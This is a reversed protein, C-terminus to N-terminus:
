RVDEVGMRKAKEIWEEESDTADTKEADGDEHAYHESSDKTMADLMGMLLKHLEKRNFTDPQM